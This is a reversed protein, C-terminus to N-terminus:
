LFFSSVLGKVKVLFNVIDLFLSYICVHRVYGFLFLFFFLPFFSCRFLFLLSQCWRAHLDVFKILCSIAVHNLFLYSWPRHIFKSVGDWDEECPFCLLFINFIDVNFTLVKLWYVHWFTFLMVFFLLSFHDPTLLSPHVPRKWGHNQKNPRHHREFRM